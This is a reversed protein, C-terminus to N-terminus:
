SILGGITARNKDNSQKNKYRNMNAIYLKFKYHITNINTIRTQLFILFLAFMM